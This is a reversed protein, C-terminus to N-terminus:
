TLTSAGLELVVQDLHPYEYRVALELVLQYM